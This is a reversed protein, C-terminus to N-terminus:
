RRARVRLLRRVLEVSARKSAAAKLARKAAREPDSSSVIAVVVRAILDVLWRPCAELLTAIESVSM